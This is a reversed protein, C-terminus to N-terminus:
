HCLWSLEGFQDSLRIAPADDVPDLLTGEFAEYASCGMALAVVILLGAAWGCLRM